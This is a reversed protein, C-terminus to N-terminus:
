RVFSLCSSLDPERFLKYTDDIRFEDLSPSMVKELVSNLTLKELGAECILYLIFSKWSLLKNRLFLDIDGFIYTSFANITLWVQFWREYDKLYDSDTLIPIKFSGTEPVIKFSRGNIADQVQSLTMYEGPFVYDPIFGNTLNFRKYNLIFESIQAKVNDKYQLANDKFVVVVDIDSYGPIGGGYSCNGGLSVYALNDSFIKVAEVFDELSETKFDLKSLQKEADDKLNLIKEELLDKM